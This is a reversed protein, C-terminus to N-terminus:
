QLCHPTRFEELKGNLRPGLTKSWHVGTLLININVM